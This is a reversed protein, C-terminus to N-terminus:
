EGQAAAAKPFPTVLRPADGTVTVPTVFNPKPARGDWLQVEYSGPWVSLDGTAFDALAFADAPLVLPDLVVSSPSPAPAPSGDDPSLLGPSRAFDVLQKFPMQVGDGGGGSSSSSSSGNALGPVDLPRVFAQLVLQAPGDFPPSTDTRAVTLADFRVEAAADEVGFSVGAGGGDDDDNSLEFSAYDLGYGFTWLVNDGTYYKYTSGAGEAMDMVLFDKEDVYASGFMTYPLRGSPSFDGFIAGAVAASGFPGPYFASLIALPGGSISSSSSSSSSSDYNALADIGLAGGHLFVAATPKGLALVQLALEEQLGATRGDTRFM